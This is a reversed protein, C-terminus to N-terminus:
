ILFGHTRKTESVVSFLFQPRNWSRGEFLARRIKLVVVSGGVRLHEHNEDFIITHQMWVSETVINYTHRQAHHIRFKQCETEWLPKWYTNEALPLFHCISSSPSQFVLALSPSLTCPTVRPTISYPENIWWSPIIKGREIQRRKVGRTKTEQKTGERVGGGKMEQRSRERM